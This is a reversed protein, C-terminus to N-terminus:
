FEYELGDTDMVELGVNREEMPRDLGMRLGRARPILRSPSSFSTSPAPSATPPRLRAQTHLGSSCKMTNTGQTVM